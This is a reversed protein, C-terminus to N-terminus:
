PFMCPLLTQMILQRQQLNRIETTIEAISADGVQKRVLEILEKINSPHKTEVVELIIDALPKM